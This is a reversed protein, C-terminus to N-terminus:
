NKNLESEKKIIAERIDILIKEEINMSGAPDTSWKGKKSKYLIYKKNADPEQSLRIIYGTMPEEKTRKKFFNLNFHKKFVLGYNVQGKVNNPLDITFHAM